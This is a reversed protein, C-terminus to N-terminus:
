LHKYYMRICTALIEMKSYVCLCPLTYETSVTIIINFKWLDLIFKTSVIIPRKFNLPCHPPPATTLAESKIQYDHLQHNSDSQSCRHDVPSLTYLGRLQGNCRLRPRIFYPNCKRLRWQSSIQIRDNATCKCSNFNSTFGNLNKFFAVVYSSSHLGMCQPAEKGSILKMKGCPSERGVSSSGEIPFSRKCESAGKGSSLETRM